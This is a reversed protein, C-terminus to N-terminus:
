IQNTKELLKEVRSFGTTKKFKMNYTFNVLSDSPDILEMNLTGLIEKGFNVSLITEENYKGTSLDLRVDQANVIVSTVPLLAFMDRAIRIACSCVYDQEIDFYESKSMKKKSLKGTKTLVLKEKPVINESNVKFDVEIQNYNEVFFEFGSGFELLDDLPKDIEIAEFYADIDNRLIRKAVDIVRTAYNFEEIDKQKGELIKNELDLKTKNAKGSLKDLMSPNFSELNRLAVIENQGKVGLNPNFPIVTNALELWNTGTDAEKHIEQIMNLSNEFLDVQLKNQELENLKEQQKRLRQLENNRAYSKSKPTRNNM